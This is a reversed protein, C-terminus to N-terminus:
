VACDGRLEGEPLSQSFGWGTPAGPPRSHDASSRCHVAPPAM